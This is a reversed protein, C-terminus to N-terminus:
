AQPNITNAMNPKYLIARAAYMFPIDAVGVVWKLATLGFILPWVPAVGWFAICVFLASDLAMAPLSSLANRVWLHRGNTIKRLWGFLHADLNESVFFAILSAVVLRPVSGFIFAYAEQGTFFPAPVAKVVLYSFLVMAVQSFLAIWIMHQTEKKGFKENVIDTLLFTVSFVLVAAPAFLKTFGFDFTIIKVAALNSFLVLTVYLAILADSREFRRAYWAALVCFGSVLIIWLFVLSLTMYGLIYSYRPRRLFSLLEVWRGRISKSISVLFRNWFSM